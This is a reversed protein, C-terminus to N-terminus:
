EELVALLFHVDVRDLGFAAFAALSGGGIAVLRVLKAEEARAHTDDSFLSTTSGIRNGRPLAIHSLNRAVRVIFIPIEPLVM